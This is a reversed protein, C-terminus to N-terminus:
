SIVAPIRLPTLIRFFNLGELLHLLLGLLLLDLCLGLRQAPVVAVLAVRGLVDVGMHIVKLDAVEGPVRAQGQLFVELTVGGRAGGQDRLFAELTVGGQARGRSPLFAARTVGQDGGLVTPFVEHTAGDQPGGTDQHLLVGLLHAIDTDGIIGRMQPIIDETTGRMRRTIDETIGRMRRTIGLIMLRTHDTVGESLHGATLLVRDLTTDAKGATPRIHGAGVVDM